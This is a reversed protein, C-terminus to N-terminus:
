IELASRGERHLLKYLDKRRDQWNLVRGTERHTNLLELDVDHVVLTEINPTCEAAVADRAFPFDSPTYIGSQAYHVDLNQVSPINGVCGSLVTYVHNEICRSQACYRVRLYGYREDTNFPVFIIQAGKAVAIRCLEPFEIDYCILIAIKGRDTDFVEVKNGAQVEWWKKENPTIHIKYQKGVSGDRRFLYAVNYIKGKELTFHSGGVINTQYEVSLRKFLELYRPTFGALKHVGKVPDKEELFSLLQTTFIEPFVVFDTKYDGAVDVFYECQNAFEEFNAIKRMQYQVSCVRAQSVPVYKRYPDPKYYHNAWEMLVACGQSAEDSPFYKEIIRKVTFGNALQSNIVPDSRKKELVADLYQWPSLKSAMKAYGPMRGAIVIRMLNLERVLKKRESYLLKSLGTKQYDPDVMIEIGYLTKGKPNHNRIYGFDTVENWTHGTSYLTFDLILSSSSAILKGKYEIVIQGEKFNKLQSKIQEKLWPHMGPFCKLQLKVLQDYDSLKLNRITLKKYFDEREQKNM